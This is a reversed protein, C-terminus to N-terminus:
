RCIRSLLPLVSREELPLLSSSFVRTVLSTSSRSLSLRSVTLTTRQRPVRSERALRGQHRQSRSRPIRTGQAPSYSSNRHEHQAQQELVTATDCASGEAPLDNWEYLLNYRQGAGDTLITVILNLSHSVEPSIEIAPLAVGECGKIAEEFREFGPGKQEGRVVLVAQCGAARLAPMSPVLIAAREADVIALKCGSNTLCHTLPELPSWANVAVVVAGLM